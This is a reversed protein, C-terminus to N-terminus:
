PTSIITIKKREIERERRLMAAQSQSHTQHSALFLNFGPPHLDALPSPGSDTSDGATVASTHPTNTITTGNQTTVARNTGFTQMEIEQPTTSQTSTSPQPPETKAGFCGVKTSDNQKQPNPGPNQATTGNGQGNQQDQVHNLNTATNNSQNSHTTVSSQNHQILNTNTNTSLSSPQSDVSVQIDIDHAPQTGNNFQQQKQDTDRIQVQQHSTESDDSGFCGFIPSKKNNQIENSNNNAQNERANQANPAIYVETSGAVSDDNQSIEGMQSGALTNFSGDSNVGNAARPTSQLSSPTPMLKLESQSPGGFFARATSNGRQRRPTTLSFGSRFSSNDDFQSDQRALRAELVKREREQAQRLEQALIQDFKSQLAYLVEHAIQGSAVKLGWGLHQRSLPVPMDIVQAWFERIREIETDSGFKNIEMSNCKTTFATYAWASAYHSIPAGILKGSVPNSNSQQQQDNQINGNTQTSTNSGSSLAPLASPPPLPGTNDKNQTSTPTNSNDQAVLVVELQADDTQSAIPPLAKPSEGINGHEQSSIPRLPQELGPPPSSSEALTSLSSVLSSKPNTDSTTVTPTRHVSTPTLPETPLATSPATHVTIRGRTLTSSAQDVGDVYRYLTRDRERSQGRYRSMSRDRITDDVREGRGRVHSNSRPAPTLVLEDNPTPDIPRSAIYDQDFSIAGRTSYSSPQTVLSPQQLDQPKSQSQNQRQLAEQQKITKAKLRQILRTQKQPHDYGLPPNWYKSVQTVTALHSFHQMLYEHQQNAEETGVISNTHHLLLPNSHAGSLSSPLQDQGQNHQDRNGRRDTVRYFPYSEYTYVNENTPPRFHYSFRQPCLVPKMGKVPLLVPYGLSTLYGPIAVGGKDDAMAGHTGSAPLALTPDATDLQIGISQTPVLTTTSKRKKRRTPSTFNSEVSNQSNNNNNNNSSSNNKGDKDGGLTMDISLHPSSLQLEGVTSMVKPLPDNVDDNLDLLDDGGAIHINLQRPTSGNRSSSSDRLQNSGNRGRGVRTRRIRSNRSTSTPSHSVEDLYTGYNDINDDLDLILDNDIGDMGEVDDTKVALDIKIAFDEPTENVLNSRRRMKVEVGEGHEFSIHHQQENSNKTDDIVLLPAPLRTGSLPSGNGALQRGISSPLTLMPVQEGSDEGEEEYLDDLVGNQYDDGIHHEDLGCDAADILTMCEESCAHYKEEKLYPALVADQSPLRTALELDAVKVVGDRGLLFNGSKVDLHMVPQKQTHMFALGTAVDIALRLQVDIPLPPLIPMATFQNFCPPLGANLQEEHEPTLNELYSAILRQSDAPDMTSLSLYEPDDSHPQINLTYFPTVPYGYRLRRARNLRQEYMFIADYVCPKHLMDHLSGQCLEMVLSVAPPMVCVGKVGTVHSFRLASMIAAEQFLNRILETTLEPAYILKIAISEQRYKGRYVKAMSGSEIIFHQSSKLKQLEDGEKAYIQEELYDPNTEKQPAKAQDITLAAFNIMEVDFTDARVLDMALTQNLGGQIVSAISNAAVSVNNAGQWYASDDLFCKYVMYPWLLTIFYFYGIHVCYTTIYDAKKLGASVLFVAYAVAWFAAYPRVVPRRAILRNNPLLILCLYFLCLIGGWTFELIASVLPNRKVLYYSATKFALTLLSWAGAIAFSRVYTRKGAGASMFSFTVVEFAVQKLAYSIGIGFANGFSNSDRILKVKIVIQLITALLVIPILIWMVYRYIPLLLFTPNEPGYQNQMSTKKAQKVKYTAFAAFGALLLPQIFYSGTVGQGLSKGVFFMDECVHTDTM